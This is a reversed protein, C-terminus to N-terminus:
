LRLADRAAMLCFGLWNDGKWTRPDAAAPDDAALGIGWIRDNAAAEVIVADRTSLLFERLDPHARFKHLNGEIVIQMAHARWTAEDFPKVKRGLRKAIYPSPADIIKRWTDMDGFLRAKEAHMWHESTKYTEDDISFPSDYFQSFCSRSPTKTYRHGYFLIMPRPGGTEWAAVLEARTRVM